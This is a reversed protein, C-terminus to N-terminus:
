LGASIRQLLHEFGGLFAAWNSALPKLNSIKWKVRGAGGPPVCSKLHTWESGCSTGHLPGWSMELSGWLTKLTERCGSGVRVAWCSWTWSEVLGAGQVACFHLFLMWRTRDSGPCWWGGAWVTQFLWHCWVSQEFSWRQTMKTEFSGYFVGCSGFSKKKTKHKWRVEVIAARQSLTFILGSRCVLQGTHHSHCSSVAEVWSVSFWNNVM